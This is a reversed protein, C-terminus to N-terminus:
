VKPQMQRTTKESSCASFVTCILIFSLIIAATKKFNENEGDGLNLYTFIIM